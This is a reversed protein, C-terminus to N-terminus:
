REMNSCFKSFLYTAIIKLKMKQSSRVTILITAFGCIAQFTSLIMIGKLPRTHSISLVVDNSIM